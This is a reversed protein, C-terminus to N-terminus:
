HILAGKILLDQFRGQRQNEIGLFGCLFSLFQAGFRVSDSGFEAIQLHVPGLSTELNVQPHWLDGDGACWLLPRHM